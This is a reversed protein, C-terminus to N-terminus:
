DPTVKGLKTERDMWWVTWALGLFFAGATGAKALTASLTYASALLPLQVALQWAPLYSVSLVARYVIRPGNKWRRIWYLCVPIATLFGIVHTWPGLRFWAHADIWLLCWVVAYAGTRVVPRGAHHRLWTRAIQIQSKSLM